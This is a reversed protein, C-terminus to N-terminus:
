LLEVNGPALDPREIRSINDGIAIFVGGGHCDRDKGTVQYGSLFIEATGVQISSDLWSESATPQCSTNIFKHPM